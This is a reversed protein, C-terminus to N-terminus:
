ASPEVPPPRLPNQPRDLAATVGELLDTIACPQILLPIHHIALWPRLAMAEQLAALCLLAPRPQVTQLQELM